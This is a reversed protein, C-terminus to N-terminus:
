RTAIGTYLPTHAVITTIGRTLGSQTEVYRPLPQGSERAAIIVKLDEMMEKQRRYMDVAKQKDERL